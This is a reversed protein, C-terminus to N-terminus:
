SERRFRLSMLTPLQVFNATAELREPVGDEETFGPEELADLVLGRRFFTGLIEHLPRHFYLKAPSCILTVDRNNAELAPVQKAPQGIVAVGRAPKVHLYEAITKSRIIDQEGTRPDFSVNVTNSHTSTFFAPHLTTVVFVGDKKLLRPIADALPELTAVDMMAMNMLVIDFEDGEVFQEFDTARTVDLKAISIERVGRHHDRHKRAMELMADCGYTAIVSAGQGAMRRACLGNGTALDLARADPRQLHAGLLRELSPKQLRQWYKNGHLGVGADWFRANVQWSSLAEESLDSM